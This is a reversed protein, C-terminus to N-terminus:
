ASNDTRMFLMHLGMTMLFDFLTHYNSSKLASGISYIPFKLNKTPPARDAYTFDFAFYLVPLYFLELLLVEYGVM